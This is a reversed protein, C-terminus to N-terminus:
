DAPAADSRPLPKALQAALGAVGVGLDRARAFAAAVAPRVAEPPLNM